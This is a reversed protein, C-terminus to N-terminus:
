RIHVGSTAAFDASAIELRVPAGSWEGIQASWMRSSTRSLWLQMPRKCILTILVPIHEYWRRM